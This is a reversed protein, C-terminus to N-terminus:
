LNSMDLNIFFTTFIFKIFNFTVGSLKLEEVLADFLGVHSSGDQHTILIDVDGCLERGRRFSGCVVVECGPRFTM